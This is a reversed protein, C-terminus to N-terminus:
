PNLEGSCDIASIPSCGILTLVQFYMRHGGLGLSALTRDSDSLFLFNLVLTTSGKSKGCLRM